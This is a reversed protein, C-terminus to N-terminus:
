TSSFCTHTDRIFRTDFPRSGFDVSPAAYIRLSVGPTCDFALDISGGATSDAFASLNAVAGLSAASSEPVAKRTSTSGSTDLNSAGDRAKLALTYETGNKLIVGDNPTATGLAFRVATGDPTGQIDRLVANRELVASNWQPTPAYYLDYDVPTSPDTAQSSWVVIQNVTSAAEARQIGALPVQWDPQIYGANSPNMAAAYRAPGVAFNDPDAAVGLPYRTDGDDDEWLQFTYTITGSLSPDQRWWFTPEPSDRFEDVNNQPRYPSANAGDTLWQNDMPSKLIDDLYFTVVTIEGSNVPVILLDSSGVFPKNTFALASIDGSIQFALPVSGVGGQPDVLSATDLQLTHDGEDSLSKFVQGADRQSGTVVTENGDLVLRVGDVPRGRADFVEVVIATEEPLPIWCGTTVALFVLVLALGPLIVRVSSGSSM